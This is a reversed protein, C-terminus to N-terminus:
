SHSNQACSSVALSILRRQGMCSFVILCSNTFSFEGPPSLLGILFSCCCLLVFFSFLFIYLSFAASEKCSDCYLIWGMTNTPELGPPRNQLTCRCENGHKRSQLPLHQQAQSPILQQAVRLALCDGVAGVEQLSQVRSSHSNQSHSVNSTLEAAARM